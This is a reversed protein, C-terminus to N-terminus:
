DRRRRLLLLSGVAVLLAGSPEPVPVSTDIEATATAAWETKHTESIGRTASASQETSVFGAIVVTILISLTCLVLFKVLNFEKPEEEALLDSLKLDKCRPIDKKSV